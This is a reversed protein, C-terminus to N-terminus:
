VMTSLTLSSENPDHHEALRSRVADSATVNVWSSPLNKWEDKHVVVLIATLIIIERLHPKSNVEPYMELVAPQRGASGASGLQSRRSHVSEESISSRHSTSGTTTTRRLSGSASHSGQSNARLSAPRYVSLITTQGAVPGRSVPVVCHWICSQSDFLTPQPVWKYTENESTFSQSSSSSMGLKWKSKTLFDTAPVRVGAMEVLTKGSTSWTVRAVEEVKKSAPDFSWLITTANNHSSVDTTVDYVLRRSDTPTFTSRLLTNGNTTIHYIDEAIPQRVQHM